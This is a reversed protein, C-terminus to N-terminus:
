AWDNEHSRTRIYEQSRIDDKHCIFILHDGENVEIHRYYFHAQIIDFLPTPKRRHTIRLLEDHQMQTLAQTIVKMPQPPELESVDIHHTTTM